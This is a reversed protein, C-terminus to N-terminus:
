FYFGQKLHGVNMVFAPNKRYEAGNCPFLIIKKACHLSKPFVFSISNRSYIMIHFLFPFQLRLRRAKEKKIKLGFLTTGNNNKTLKEFALEKLKPEEGELFTPLDKTKIETGTLVKWENVLRQVYDVILDKQVTAQEHERQKYHIVKKGAM